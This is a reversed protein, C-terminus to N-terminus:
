LDDTLLHGTSSIHVNSVRLPLPRYDIMGHYAVDNPDHDHPRGPGIVGGVPEGHAIDMHGGIQGNTGAPPVQLPICM